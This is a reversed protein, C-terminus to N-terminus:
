TSSPPAVHRNRSNINFPALPTIATRRQKRSDCGPDDGWASGTTGFVIQSGVTSREANQASVSLLKVFLSSAQLLCNFAQFKKAKERYRLRRRLWQAEKCRGNM